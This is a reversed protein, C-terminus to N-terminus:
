MLQKIFQRPTEGMYMKFERQFHAQDSYGIQTIFQSNNRQPDKIIESLAKHFRVLKCYEKPGYGFYSTFIRNIHRNSYGTIASLENMTVFGETERITRQIMSVGPPCFPISTTGHLYNIFCHIREEFSATNQLQEILAAEPSDKQPIHRIMHNLLGAPTTFPSNAPTYFINDDFRICFYHSFSDPSCELMDSSCRAYYICGSGSPNYGIIVETYPSPILSFTLQKQLEYFYMNAPATMLCDNTLHNRTNLLIFPQILTNNHTM